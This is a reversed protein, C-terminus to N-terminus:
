VGLETLRTELATVRDLLGANGEDGDVAGQLLRVREFINRQSTSGANSSSPLALGSESNFTLVHENAKINISGSGSARFTINRDKSPEM